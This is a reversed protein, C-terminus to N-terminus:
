QTIECVTRQRQCVIINYRLLQNLFLEAWFLAAFVDRSKLFVRLQWCPCRAPLRLAFALTEQSEGLM